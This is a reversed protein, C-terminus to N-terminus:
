SRVADRYEAASYVSEFAFRDRRCHGCGNATDLFPGIPASCRACYAEAMPVRAECDACARVIGGSPPTERGCLPCAEPLLVGVAAEAIRRILLSVAARM